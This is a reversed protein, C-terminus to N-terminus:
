KILKKFYFDIQKKSIDFIKKKDSKFQKYWEVVLYVTEDLTLSSRWNLLKKAKKNNLQLLRSEYFKNNRLIKWKIKLNKAQIKKLFKLVSVNKIKNSSFNFSEGNLKSNKKMESALILYGFVVELVHQWPRTANPSRISIIKNSLWCKIIDPILRKESWDGGGIVNGARATCVTLQNNQNKLYTEYFSKFLIESSAKSASYPDIGGLNDNEQYLVKKNLNKYCKDSTILVAVCRKKLKNLGIMINLFGLVNTRWNFVPDKISRIVLSQAALHFVFDPKVNIIFNVCKHYNGIDFYKKKVFIKKNLLNFHNDKEKPKLSIGYLKAGLLYLCLSLWTGKFGNFGTVLIKKNKFTKKLKKM